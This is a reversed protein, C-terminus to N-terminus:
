STECCGVVGFMIFIKWNFYTYWSLSINLSFSKESIWIETFKLWYLRAIWGRCFVFTLYKRGLLLFYIFKFVQNHM